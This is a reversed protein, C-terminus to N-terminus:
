GNLTERFFAAMAAHAQAAEPLARGMKVFEHGVGRYLELQVPVGEMRLRDAYALGEDILPDCEALIFLAPAANGVDPALLPAFRWDSRDAPDIYNAFFWDVLEKSIVPGQAFHQHSATDQHACTGPYILCQARLPLREDRALLACVAALTGGASDGAVALRQPDIQLSKGHQHLWQLADWCDNVATPFRYEPSMRYELSLVAVQAGAAMRACLVNHTGIGGVTFGGGHLFLVCALPQGRRPEHPLYLRYPLRWDRVPLTGDRWQVDKPFDNELVEAAQSYALRAQQAPLSHMPPQSSRAMGQVINRMAPTLLPWWPQQSPDSHM